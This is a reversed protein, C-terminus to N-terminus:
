PRQKVAKRKVAVDRVASVRYFYRNESAAESYESVPSSFVAADEFDEPDDTRYINFRSVSIPYSWDLEINGETYEITLDDIVPLPQWTLTDAGYVNNTEDLESCYEDADVQFWSNWVTDVSSTVDNFSVVVSDAANLSDITQWDDGYDGAEPATSQNIYFDINFFRSIDITGINRITLTVDIEDGPYAVTDTWTVNAIVLDPGYGAWEILDYEDDEFEPGAFDGGANTFNVSGQNLSKTVNSSSSWSNAPFTANDITLTQSNDITLLTGGAIGNRFTCYDFPNSIDVLAGDQVNIGNSDMYEFVAYDARITAGSEINVGYYGAHHTLLAENDESGILELVGGSNVYLTNADGVQLSANEDLALIGGSNISVDGTCRYNHGNLNFTGTEITLNGNGLSVCDTQLTVTEARDKNSVRTKAANIFKEGKAKSNKVPAATKDIYVDYLYGDTTTPDFSLNQDSTGAFVVTNQTTSNWGGGPIVNFDGYVTHVLFDESDFWEGVSITLDGLITINNFPSFYGGSKNILVNYFSDAACSSNIFQTEHGDFTVTSNGYYFGTWSDYHNNTNNWDGGLYINLDSDGYANLGADAAINLDNNINLTSSNNMELTGDDINLDNLVQVTIGENLELAYYHSSSKDLTLNYFTEDTTIDGDETGSFIVTGLNPEFGTPGQENIWDGGVNLDVDFMTTEYDCELTGSLIKVDNLVNTDYLYHINEGSDCNIILDYIHNAYSIELNTLPGQGTLELEGATPEFTDSRLAYFEAGIRMTGGSINDNFTEPITISNNTIEFLGDSLNLQGYLLFHLGYTYDKDCILSGGSITLISTEELNLEDHFVASGEGVDLEGSQNVDSDVTLSGSSGLDLAADADINLNRDVYVDGNQLHFIYSNVNLNGTIRMTDTTSSHLWLADATQNCNVYGFEADEDQCTIFQNHAGMFNITSELGFQAETGEEFIWDGYVNITARPEYVVESGSEWRIEDGFEDGANIIGDVNDMILGGAIIIDNAVNLEWNWIKFDGSQIELNNTVNLDRQMIAGSDIYDSTVLLNNFYNGNDCQIGMLFGELTGQINVTGGTPEFTGANTASFGSCRIIGDSVNDTCTAGILLSNNSIELLGGSQNLTGNISCYTDDEYPEDCILEGSTITLTGTEELQYNGHFFSSGVGVDLTGAQSFDSINTLSGSGALDIETGTQIDLIGDVLLDESQIHFSRELITMNGAVRMTDTSTSHLWISGDTQNCNLNGFEADDDQYYIFQNGDGTFNVTNATTFQADIDNEFLWHGSVTITGDSIEATSGSFWNMNECTLSADSSSMTFTGYIDVSDTVNMSNAGVDFNGTELTFDGTIELDSDANITNAREIRGKHGERDKLTIYKKEKLTHKLAAKNIIVDNLSSGAGTSLNADTSGYLEITGGGPNFDSRNGTFSHATRIIGGTIDENLDNGSDYIHIGNDHFNLEGADMTIYVDSDYSWWSPAAGGYVNLIGGYIKLHGNLDIFQGSDQYLDINCDEHVEFTGYLGNDILDHTLFSSGTGSILLGGASWDYNECTISAGSNSRLYGFSKNLELDYFIESSCYQVADGDFVVRGTGEEFGAEGVNNNWNGGVFMTDPATFVGNDITFNGEIDLNSLANVTNARTIKRTKGDRDTKLSYKKDLLSEKVAAKNINLNYFNSGEGMTLEVDDSGYLEITGGTPNFDSREGTVSGVTRITGDSIDESFSYSASNRIFIGNDHFDLTGGSMNISADRLSPWFSTTVGGYVNMTGSDIYITGNLDILYSDDQYLNIEGENNLEYWGFIGNQSLDAATFNGGYVLLKGTEFTFTSCSVVNSEPIIVYTDDKHIELDNFTESNCYSISGDLIVRGEGEQFATEDLNNTWSGAVWMTDPANFTGSNITFSGNIDLNSTATITNSKSTKIQNGDRDKRTSNKSTKIENKNSKSNKNIEVQFFNSGEGMNIVADTSGYLEITGGTPNFDDREGEFGFATRIKGGTINETLTYSGSNRIDIGHDHFDLIGGSMEITANSLYPWYSTIGGGYVNFTGDNIELHGNLDIYSGIDQHLNITGTQLTYHGYIGNQALDLATFVGGEVNLEGSTWDYTSCETLANAIVLDGSSKNLEMIDFIEGYCYQRSDGNFVVRTTSESFNSESANNVWNGGIEIRFSPPYFDGSNLIFNGNVRFTDSYTTGLSFVYSYINLILNNFYDNTNPNLLDNSNSHVIFTGSNFEYHGGSNNFSGELIIYYDSNSVLKSGSNIQLNGNITLTETSMSSVRLETNSKNVILNNLYCDSEYSRIYSYSNGDFTTYGNDMQVNAGDAFTWDGQLYINAPETIDATAGSEWTIDGGIDLESFDNNMTLNGEITVDEIVNLTQSNITLESGSEIIINKCNADSSYIGPNVPCGDPIIVESAVDPVENLTWNDSNHWNSSESGDWYNIAKYFYASGSESGNDDDRSAGILIDNVSIGVSTGYYEGDAADSATLVQLKEFSDGNKHYIFGYGPAYDVGYYDAFIQNAGIIIYNGSKKVSCGFWVGQETFDYPMITQIQNWDTTKHFIYTAGRELGWGVQPAGVLIYDGEIDVASGFKSSGCLVDAKVKQQQSWSSGSRYFIYAAGCSWDDEFQAGVVIYNGDIAVASGFGDGEKKDSALLRQQETWSSGTRHFVYAAGEDDDPVNNKHAGVVAYDSYISVSNGFNDGGSADSATLKAQQTWSSGVRHFIYAAGSNSGDDDNKPAGIIVYFGSPSIAVSSGFKDDGSADSATLKAQQTWTDGSKYYIYAAGADSGNENDGFAGIVAYNGELSVSSGFYEEAAPDSPYVQLEDTWNAFLISSTVVLIFIFIIKYM